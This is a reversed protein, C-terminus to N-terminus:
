VEGRPIELAKLWVAREFDTGVRLDVPVDVRRDGALRREVKRRLRVPLESARHVPRGFEAAFRAEFAGPETVPVIASIGQGNWVVYVPGIATELSAYEDALGIAALVRPRLTSPASERLTAIAAAIASLDAALNTVTM